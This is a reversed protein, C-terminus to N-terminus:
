SNPFELTPPTFAGAYRAVGKTIRIEDMFGPLLSAVTNNNGIELPKTSDFFNATVTSSTLVVGDQYIRLVNSADRDAAIHTWVGTTKTWAAGILPTDAGTTSWLFILQGSNGQGFYWGVSGTQWQSIMGRNTTGPATSLYIWFEVTFQGTGFCWDASDPSTVEGVGSADKLNLSTPGFKAQASDLKTSGAMSMSHAAASQDVATTAGNTGNFKLLLVVNAFYPDAPGSSAGYAALAQQPAGMSCHRARVIGRQRPVLLGSSPDIYFRSM